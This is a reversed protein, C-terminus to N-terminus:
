WAVSGDAMDIAYMKGADTTCVALKRLGFSSLSADAAADLLLESGPLRLGNAMDLSKGVFSQRAPM